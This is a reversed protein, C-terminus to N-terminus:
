DSVLVVDRWILGGGSVVRLHRGTGLVAGLVKIIREELMTNDASHTFYRFFVFADVVFKVLLLEEFSDEVCHRVALIASDTRLSVALWPGM